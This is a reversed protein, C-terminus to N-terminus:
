LYDGRNFKFTESLSLIELENVLAALAPQGRELDPYASKLAAIGGTAGELLTYAGRLSGPSDSALQQAYDEMGTFLNELRSAIELAAGQDAPAPSAAMAPLSVPALGRASVNAGGAPASERSKEAAIRQDLLAAFDEASRAAKRQTETNQLARLQETQIKM